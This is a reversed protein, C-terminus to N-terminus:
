KSRVRPFVELKKNRFDSLSAIINEAFLYGHVSAEAKREAFLYDQVSTEVKREWVCM